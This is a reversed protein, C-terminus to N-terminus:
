NFNMYDLILKKMKKNVKANNIIEYIDKKIDQKLIKELMEILSFVTIDKEINLPTKKLYSLLTNFERRYFNITTIFFIDNHSITNRFKRISHCSSIFNSINDKNINFKAAVKEKINLSQIDIFTVLTHFSWSISLNTLPIKRPDDFMMLCNCGKASSYIEDIFTNKNKVKDLNIDNLNLIYDDSNGLSYSIVEISRANLKQEFDLIHYILTKALQKDIDFLKCINKTNYQRKPLTKLLDGYCNIIKHFGYDKILTAINNKNKIKINLKKIKDIYNVNINEM